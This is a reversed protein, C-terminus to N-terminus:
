GEELSEGPLIKAEGGALEKAPPSDGCCTGERAQGEEQLPFDSSTTPHLNKKHVLFFFFFFQLSCYHGKVSTLPISVDLEKRIKDIKGM